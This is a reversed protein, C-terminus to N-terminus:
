TLTLTKRLEKRRLWRGGFWNKDLNRGIYPPAVSQGARGFGQEGFWHVGLGCELADLGVIMLAVWGDM